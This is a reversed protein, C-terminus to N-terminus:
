PTQRTVIHLIGASDTYTEVKPRAEADRKVRSREAALRAEGWHKGVNHVYEATERYPPIDRYRFVAGEGANYAALALREDQFLTLLYKLYRVGGEINEWPNFTNSVDFRRATGPMLQMLGQAGKPSTAWPNYNSEVKIVSHVLLPDLEYRRAIEEIFFHLDPVRVGAPDGPEVPNVVRSKIEKPPVLRSPVVFTRVLRGSHPDAKVVTTIKRVPGHAGAAQLLTPGAWGLWVGFILCFRM